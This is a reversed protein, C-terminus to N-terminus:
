LNTGTPVLLFAPNGRLSCSRDCVVTGKYVRTQPCVLSTVHWERQKDHVLFFPVLINGYTQSFTTKSASFPVFPRHLFLRKSSSPQLGQHSRLSRMEWKLQPGM